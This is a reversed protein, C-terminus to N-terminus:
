CGDKVFQFFLARFSIYIREHPRDYMFCVSHKFPLLHLGYSRVTAEFIAKIFTTSHKVVTQFNRITNFKCRQLPKTYDTSDFNIKEFLPVAKKTCPKVNKFM